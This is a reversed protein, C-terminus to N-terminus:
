KRKAAPKSPLKAARKKATSKPAGAPRVKHRREGPSDQWIAVRELLDGILRLVEQSNRAIVEVKDRDEADAGIHHAKHRLRDAAVAIALMPQKLDQSLLRLFEDRLALAERTHLHEGAEKTLFAAARRSANDGLLRESALDRDTAHRERKFLDERSSEVATRERSKTSDVMARETRAARDAMAREARMRADSHRREESLSLKGSSRESRTADDAARRSAGLSDDRVKRSDTIARDAAKELQDRRGALTLDTNSREASLSRDTKKRGRTIIQGLPSSSRTM